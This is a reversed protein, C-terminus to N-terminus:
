KVCSNLAILLEEEYGLHLLRDALSAQSKVYIDDNEILKDFNFAPKEPIKVKCPVSVPIEVKQIVTNIGPQSPLQTTACGSLVLAAIIVSNRLM